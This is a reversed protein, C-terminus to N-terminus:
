TTIRVVTAPLASGSWRDIWERDCSEFMDRALKQLVGGHVDPNSVQSQIWSLAASRTVLTTSGGVEVARFLLHLIKKRLSDSLGPSNYLSLVREFVNARRYLDMDKTSRLGNIFVQLLWRVEEHHSYDYEPEHLLIKDIWYSPIKTIEWRPGKHLYKNVKGYLKHIPDKLVLVMQAALEGAIYPLPTQFGLEKATELVEGALVYIAQSEEFKSDMLKIMFRSLAMSAQRRIEEHESCLCLILDGIHGNEIANELEDREWRNLQPHSDGEVPLAGFEQSLEARPAENSKATDPLTDESATKVQVRKQSLLESTLKFSRKLASRAKKNEAADLAENQVKALGSENEGVLKLFGLVRAIWEAVISEQETNGGKVVFPWQENITAIILSLPKDTEDTLSETLDLYLVPKKVLRTVCNDFFSLQAALDSTKSANFSELLADFSASSSLVSNQVLVEQLLTRIDELPTRDSAGALVKLVSTFASFELSGPKQWWRMTPSEQAVTLLNALQSLLPERDEESLEPENLRNLVEVLTLSVDFKEELAITPIVQYFAALLELVADQQQLNDKPTQRFLQIVDKMTPCRRCFEGILNSSAQNWVDSRPERDARFIKLVAQLKRLSLTIIRIAFLTVVDTNQNICRTLVKQTLPKPLISEIVVSVPPPVLPTGDRWGCNVPVPLQITSFLFASEGLWSPTPKPDSTFMMRKSFFDYVLEPAAKFIKLLLEMQRTDSDPRLFQTLTSLNGNRVPVSEKYKDFHIPSDLGLPIAGDNETPLVDPNSGTPYWGTEPLLVGKETSTCVSVLFNHIGNSVSEEGTVAEDSDKEFGYLTVLRELNWRNLFRSKASRTLSSDSIIHRDLARIIDIIIDRSDKRIDELFARILKGQGILEEKAGASQFKLNALVYRQAIRRLTPKRRDEAEEEETPTSRSSLFIDLRKFTIDRKAFVLRAVSGGDFGVIETLLRVCPSILHEKSKSATFGRNFLKLQEKDLLFKCLALGFDSLELQSSATKLFQALVSPVLSLLSEQNSSEAFKWTEILDPFCTTISDEGASVHQSDCYAKLLRLKKAKENENEAEGISSLFDKFHRVGQRVEPSTSEQFALINRLQNPSTISVVPKPVVSFDDHIKRRKVRSSDEHFHAM